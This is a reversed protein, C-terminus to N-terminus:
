SASEKAKEKNSSTEKGSAEGLPGRKMRLEARDIASELGRVRDSIDAQKRWIFFLWAMMILWIAAYAEVMLKYGSFQEGTAGDVAQFDTARDDASGAAPGAASSSSPSPAAPQGFFSSRM